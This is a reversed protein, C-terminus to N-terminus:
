SIIIIYNSYRTPPTHTHTHTLLSLCLEIFDVLAQNLSKMKTIYKIEESM